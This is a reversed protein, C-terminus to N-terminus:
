RCAGVQVCKQYEGFGGDNAPPAAGQPPAQVCQGGVASALNMCTRHNTWYTQGNQATFMHGAVIIVWYANM